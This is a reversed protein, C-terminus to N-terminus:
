FQIKNFKQRVKKGIHCDNIFYSNMFINYFENVEHSPPQMIRSRHYRIEIIRSRQLIISNFIMKRRYVYFYATNAYQAYDMM